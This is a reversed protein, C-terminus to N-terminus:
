TWPVRIWKLPSSQHEHPSSLEPHFTTNTALINHKPLPKAVKRFRRLQHRDNTIASKAEHSHILKEFFAGFCIFLHTPSFVALKQPVSSIEKCMEYGRFTFIHPYVTLTNSSLSTTQPTPIERPRRNHRLTGVTM